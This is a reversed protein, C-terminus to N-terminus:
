CESLYMDFYIERDIQFCFYRLGAFPPALGSAITTEVKTPIVQGHHLADFMTPALSFIGRTFDFWCRSQVREYTASYNAQPFLKGFKLEIFFVPYCNMCTVILVIKNPQKNSNDLTVMVM